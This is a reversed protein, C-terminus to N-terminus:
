VKIEKFYIQYVKNKSNDSKDNKIVIAFLDNLNKIKKKEVM